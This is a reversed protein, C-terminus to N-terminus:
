SGREWTHSLSKIPIWQFKITHGLDFCRKLNLLVDILIQDNQNHRMFTSIVQLAPKCDSFITWHEPPKPFIMELAQNIAVLESATSSTMHSLKFTKTTLHSPIVVCATSSNSSVSGDTYVHTTSAHDCLINSLVLQMIVSIPTNAKKRIGKIDVTVDPVPLRWPPVISIKAPALDDPFHAIIQFLAKSYSSHQRQLGINSLPHNTHKTIHRLHVRVTELLLLVEVPTAHAEAITGATSTCAPLGLCARLARAQVSKITNVNTQCLGHIAPLSYRLLGVFLARYLRLLAPVTAGWTTGSIFRCLDVFGTLKKKLYAVHTTWTLGRDIYVGLFMHRTVYPITQNCIRLPYSDMNRRTFAIAASKAASIELGRLYLYKQLRGLAVQIRAKAQVRTSGSAWICIDDAYLSANVNSPLVQDLRILTLNFLIPSLVGGQPVGRYVYHDATDGEQTTM